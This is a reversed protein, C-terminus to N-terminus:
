GSFRSEMLLRARQEPAVLDGCCAIMTADAEFLAYIIAAVAIEMFM